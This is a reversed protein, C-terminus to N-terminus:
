RPATAPTLREGSWTLVGWVLRKFAGRAENLARSLEGAPQAVTTEWSAAAASPPSAIWDFNVAPTSAACAGQAVIPELVIQRGARLALRAGPQLHLDGLPGSELGEHPGDLTAWVAGHIILIEGNQRPRLTMAHGPELTWAGSARGLTPLYPTNSTM